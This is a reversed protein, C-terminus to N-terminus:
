NVTSCICEISGLGSGKCRLVSVSNGTSEKFKTHESALQTVKYCQLTNRDWMKITNDRLGSVIKHDDYQLCYVGKSTESRCNIKQLNHRGMRWNNEITKINQVCFFMM